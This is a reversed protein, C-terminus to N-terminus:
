RSFSCFIKESSIRDLNILHTQVKQESSGFNTFVKVKLFKPNKVDPKYGKPVKINMFWEGEDINSLIYEESTFGEKLEQNITKENKEKTHSLTFYQKKPNIYQMEFEVAPHSWETVVRLDYKPLMFFYSDINRVNWQQNRHSLISKFDNEIQPRLGNFTSIKSVKNRTIKKFLKLSEPFKQEQFYNNALDLYAQSQSPSLTIIRNYVKGSLDFMGRKELNFALIKLVSTNDPFLEILNSLIQIGKEKQDNDFFYDACEVFFSVNDINFDRMNLYAAYAEDFNTKQQLMTAYESKRNKAVVLPRKFTEYEVDAPDKSEEETSSFSGFNGLKTKIIVVGKNGLQGYRNTAALGKLVTISKIINPDIFDYDAKGFKPQGIAVVGLDSRPLPTGDIIITPHNTLLYSSMGRIVMQGPDQNTGMQVGSIKGAMAQGLDVEDPSIEDTGISQISYGIADKNVLRGDIEIMQRKDKAKSKLIAPELENVKDTLVVDIFEENNEVVVVAQKKNVSSFVLVDGSQAAIKYRGSEDTITGRNKGEVLVNVNSLVDTQSTVVGQIYNKNTTNTGTTVFELKPLRTDNEIAQLAESVKSEYLNVHYGLSYFSTEHLFKKDIKKASSITIIKPGYLNRKYKGFYGQGDTFLLLLKEDIKTNILSYDLTGEYKIAKLKEKVLSWDSSRISVTENVLMKTNFVLLKSDVNPHKKFFADLFEFEKNTDKDKQSLSADWYIAIKEPINSTNAIILNVLFLCFLVTLYRKM